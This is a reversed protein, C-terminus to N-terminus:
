KNKIIIVIKSNNNYNNTQHCCLRIFVVHSGIEGNVASAAEATNDSSSADLRRSDTVNPRREKSIVADKDNEGDILHSLTLREPFSMRFYFCCGCKCYCGSFWLLLLLKDPSVKLIYVEIATCNCM